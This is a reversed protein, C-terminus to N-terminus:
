EEKHCACEKNLCVASGDYETDAECEGGCFVCEYVSLKILLDEDFGELFMPAGGDHECWSQFISDNYPTMWEAPNDGWMTADNRDKNTYLVDMKESWTKFIEVWDNLTRKKITIQEM